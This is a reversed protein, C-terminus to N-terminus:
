KDVSIYCYVDSVKPPTTSLVAGQLTGLFNELNYTTAGKFDKPRKHWAEIDEDHMTWMRVWEPLAYLSPRLAIRYQYVGSAPLDSVDIDAQLQLKDFPFQKPSLSAVVHFAKQAQDSEVPVLEKGGKDEGKWSTVEPKLDSGYEMVNTLAGDYPLDIILKVKTRGKSIKFAKAHDGKYDGSILNSVNIESIKDAMRLKAGSFSALHSTLHRSFILAYKEPFANIGKAALVDFYHAIDAHTGFALLYFPRNSKPKDSKYSFSYANPGVDYVSGEFQSRIAYVGIALNNAIFKEKLKESLQNVDANTQFLDTVIVTLHDPVARDIVREILTKKNYKSDAYFLPKSAELYTRGPLVGIDDGFKHFKVQGGKWGEIVGRELLPVTLQYFSTTQTSVFGKMSLTADFFLDVKLAQSLPEFKSALDDTPPPTRKKSCASFGTALLLCVCM